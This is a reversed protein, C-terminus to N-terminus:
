RGQDYSLEIGFTSVTRSIEHRLFHCVFWEMRQVMRALLPCLLLRVVPPAGPSPVPRGLPEGSSFTRLLTAFSMYELQVWKWHLYAQPVCVDM